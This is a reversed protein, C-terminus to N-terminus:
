DLLIVVKGVIGGKRANQYAKKFEVLPFTKAITIELGKQIIWECLEKYNEQTPIAMVTKHKKSSWLNNFFAKVMELPSPLTSVYYANPKMLSRAKAFPLNGSLEFITDYVMKSDLVNEKNYDVSFDPKWKQLFDLGDGNAVATVKMNKSKAMQLVVMGVGGSSGNILIESGAKAQPATKFLYLAAAGISVMAAATEFSIGEPKKFIKDKKVVIYEALAEGKMADLAGFVADGKSYTNVSNGVLEIVGSFDFAIGKPFKNGTVIKMQGELKKWDLPNIAVAKVKVLLEDAQISPIEVETLQLDEITGYQNYIVKKM